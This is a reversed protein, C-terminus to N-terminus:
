TSRTSVEPRCASSPGDCRAREVESGPGGTILLLVGKPAAANDATAVALSLAGAARGTHDLPVTLTSCTYGSFGPCPASDHLGAVGGASVASSCAAVVAWVAPACAFRFM